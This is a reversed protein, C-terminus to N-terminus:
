QAGGAVKMLQKELEIVLVDLVQNANNAIAPRLFPHAPTDETGFEVYRWHRTDGGPNDRNQPAKVRTSRAGGRVGVRMVVGGVRRGGRPSDQIVINKHIRERTEPDDIRQAERRAADRVVRMAKRAAAKAGKRQLKVPIARLRSFLTDIGTISFENAM